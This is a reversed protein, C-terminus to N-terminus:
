CKIRLRLYWNLYNKRKVSGRHLYTLYLVGMLWLNQVTLAPQGVMQQVMSYDCFAQVLSNFPSFFFHPSFSFNQVDCPTSLLFKCMFGGMARRHKFLLTDKKAKWLLRWIAKRCPEKAMLSLKGQGLSLAPLQSFHSLVMTKLRMVWALHEVLLLVDVKVRTTPFLLLM